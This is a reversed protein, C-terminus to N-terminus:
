VYLFIHFLRQSKGLVNEIISYITSEGHAPKKWYIGHKLLHEVFGDQLDLKEEEKLSIQLERSIFMVWHLVDDVLCHNFDNSIGTQLGGFSWGGYAWLNGVRDDWPDFGATEHPSRGCCFVWPWEVLVQPDSWLWAKKKPPAVVEEPAGEAGEAGEAAPAAKQIVARVAQNESFSSPNNRHSGPLIAVVLVVLLWMGRIHSHTMVRTGLSGCFPQYISRWGMLISVLPNQGMRM